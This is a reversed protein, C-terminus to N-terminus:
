LHVDMPEDSRRYDITTPMIIETVTLYFKSLTAVNHYNGSFFCIIDYYTM